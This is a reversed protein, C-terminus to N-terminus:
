PDIYGHIFVIWPWRNKLKDGIPVTLLAYIKLSDSNYSALYQHYNDGDPFQQEVAIDSGPYSRARMAAIQLPSQKNTVALSTGHQKLRKQFVHHPILFSIVLLLVVFFFVFLKKSQLLVRM